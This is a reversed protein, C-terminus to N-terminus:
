PECHASHRGLLASFQEQSLTLCAKTPPPQTAPSPGVCHMHRCKVSKAEARTGLILVQESLSMVLKDGPYPQM